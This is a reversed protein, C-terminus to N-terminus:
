GEGWFALRIGFETVLVTGDERLSDMAREYAKGFPSRDDWFIGTGNMNFLREITFKLSESYIDERDNENDGGMEHLAGVICYRMQQWNTPVGIM